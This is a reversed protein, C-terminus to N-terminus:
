HVDGRQKIQFDTTDQSFLAARFFERFSAISYGKPFLVMIVLSPNDINRVAFVYVIKQNEYEVSKMYIVNRYNDLIAQAAKPVPEPTVAASAGHFVVVCTLLILLRKM